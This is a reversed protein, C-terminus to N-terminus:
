IAGPSLSADGLPLRAQAVATYFPHTISISETSILYCFGRAFFMGALTVIFPQLRFREILLGQACGFAGGMVLVRRIGWAPSAAHHQVLAASIMTTLAIVSGVSLDIGGTLIVFTM